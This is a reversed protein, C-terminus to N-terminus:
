TALNKEYSRKLELRVKENYEQFSMSAKHFIFNCDGVPGNRQKTIYLDRRLVKKSFDEKTHGGIGAEEWKELENDDKPRANHLMMIADADQELHGSERIDSMKPARTDRESERNMQALALVPVELDKAIQKIGMSIKAVENERSSYKGEGQILQAYDIMVVDVNFMAKMRRARARIDSITGYEDNIYLGKGSLEAVAHALPPLDEKVMYGTRYKQFNGKARAFVLRRVLEMASMELSFVGVKTGDLLMNEVINMAISTKGMGPRGALVIMEAPHFGGTMKDLYDFGTSIGTINGAGYKYNNMEDMFTELHGDLTPKESVKSRNLDLLDVEAKDVISAVGGHEDPKKIKLLVENCVSVTQRLMMKEYVENLYVEAFGPTPSANECELLFSIYDQTEGGKKIQLNLTRLDIGDGNTFMTTMAQFVTRCRIDYFLRDSDAGLKEIIMGINTIPDLLCCGILGQEGELTHNISLDSM